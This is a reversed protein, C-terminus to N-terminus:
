LANPLISHVVLRPTSDQLSGFFSLRTVVRRLVCSVHHRPDFRQLVVLVFDELGGGISGLHNVVDKGKLASLFGRGEGAGVRLADDILLRRLQSLKASNLSLRRM